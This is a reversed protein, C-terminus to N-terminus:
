LLYTEIAERVGGHDNDAVIAGCVAKVEDPANGVAIGLGAKELVCLDNGSDGVAITDELSIGLQKCLAELGTGKDIHPPTIELSTSEALVPTADLTQAFAFSREREALTRHYLCIKGSKWGCQRATERIDEVPLANGRFHAAYHSMGVDPLRGIDKRNMVAQNEMYVLPIVDNAAAFDLLAKVAAPPLTHFAIPVGEARDYVCAGSECIVYRLKPFGKLFRLLEGMCHGTSLVVMKGADLARNVAAADEPFIEKQSNLLTGDMDFALLRYRKQKIELTRRSWNRSKQWQLPKM